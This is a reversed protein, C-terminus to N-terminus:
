EAAFPFDRLGPARLLMRDLAVLEMLCDAIRMRLAEFRPSKEIREEDLYLARNIEIQLAHVGRLPRGHVHTTYGGAYPANRAVSFGRSEFIREAYRMLLPSAAMGYRDGLVIDPVVAASPMSHCDILVAAGFQAHTQEVLRTLAAHYPRYLRSLREEAERAALKDRYIEAGDRVVRPIVGLGANVRPSATDLAGPLRGEFMAADLEAPSRNVDLYARPFRAAILPAGLEVVV